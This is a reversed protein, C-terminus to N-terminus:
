YIPREIAVGEIVEGLTTGRTEILGPLDTEPAEIFTATDERGGSKIVPREETVLQTGFAAEYAAAPGAINITSASIQLIQFGGERLRQVAAQIVNSESYFAPVTSATVTPGADFLSVGGVSRPSAQAFILDPMSSGSSRRRRRRQQPM